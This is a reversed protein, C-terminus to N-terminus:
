PTMSASRISSYNTDIAYVAKNKELMLKSMTEQTIGSNITKYGGSEQWFFNSSYHKTHTHQIIIQYLWVLSWNFWQLTEIKIWSLM